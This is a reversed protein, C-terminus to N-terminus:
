PMPVRTIGALRDFGADFTAIENVGNSLMV